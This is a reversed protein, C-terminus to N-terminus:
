SPEKIAPLGFEIKINKKAAERILEATELEVQAKKTKAQQEEILLAYMSERVDGEAAGSEDCAAVVDYVAHCQEIFALRERRSLKEWPPLSSERKRREEWLREVHEAFESRDKM